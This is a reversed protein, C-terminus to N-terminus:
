VIIIDLFIPELASLLEDIGGAEIILDKLTMNNKLEYEGSINIGGRIRVKETKSFKMQFILIEDGPKIKFTAEDKKELVESLDYSILEKTM